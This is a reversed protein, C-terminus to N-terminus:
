KMMREDAFMDGQYQPPTDIPPKWIWPASATPLALLAGRMRHQWLTFETASCDCLAHGPPWGMLWEVFGPNLRRKTLNGWLRRWTSRGHSAILWARLQRWIPRLQSLTVGHPHMAPAPHSFRDSAGILGAQNSNITVKRGDDSAGPPPWQAAQAPLPMGGSGFAMNPSGKEADSARPTGWMLAQGSLKPEGRSNIKGKARDPADDAVPTQWHRSEVALSFTQTKDSPENADHKVATPRSSFASGKMRRALKARQSYALRLRSVWQGYSECCPKLASPSTVPSTRLSYGDPASKASSGPLMQGSTGSTTLGRASDQWASHSALTDPLSPILRVESHGATLPQSMPGSLPLPSTDPASPLSSPKGPTLSMSSLAARTSAQNQLCSALILAVPEQVSALDTPPVHCWTM